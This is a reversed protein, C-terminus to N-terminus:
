IQEESSQEEPAYLYTVEEYARNDGEEDVWAKAEDETHVFGITMFGTQTMNLESLLYVRDRM